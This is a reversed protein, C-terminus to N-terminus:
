NPYKKHMQVYACVPKGANSLVTDVQTVMNAAETWLGAHMERTFMAKNMMVRVSGFLTGFGQEAPGNQQPTRPATYEFKINLKEEDRLVKKLVKNEGANDCRITKVTVGPINNLEKILPVM